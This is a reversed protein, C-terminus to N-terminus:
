YENNYSGTDIVEKTSKLYIKHFQLAENLM